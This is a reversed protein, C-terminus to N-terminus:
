LALDTFSACMAAGAGSQSGDGDGDDMAEYVSEDSDTELERASIFRRLEADDLFHADEESSSDSDTIAVSESGPPYNRDLWEIAHRLVAMTAAQDISIGIRVGSNLTRVYDPPGGDFMEESSRLVYESARKLKRAVAIRDRYYSGSVCDFNWQRVWDALEEHTPLEGLPVRGTELLPKVFQVCEARFEAEEDAADDDTDSGFINALPESRVMDREIKNRLTRMVNDYFARQAVRPYGLPLTPTHARLADLAATPSCDEGRCENLWWTIQDDTLLDDDQCERLWDAIQAPDLSSPQLQRGIDDLLEFNYDSDFRLTGPSPSRSSDDDSSELRRRGYRRDPYRLNHSPDDEAPDPEVEDTVDSENSSPASNDMAESAADDDADAGAVDSENSSPASDDMAESAADADADADSGVEDSLLEALLAGADMETESEAFELDRAPPAIPRTSVFLTVYLGEDDSSAYAYQLSASTDVIDNGVVRLYPWRQIYDTLEARRAETFQPICLEDRPADASQVPVWVGGSTINHEGLVADPTYTLNLDAFDSDSFPVMQDAMDAPKHLIGPRQSVGSGRAVVPDLLYDRYMRKFESVLTTAPLMAYRIGRYTIIHLMTDLFLQVNLMWGPDSICVSDYPVLQNLQQQAFHSLVEPTDFAVPTDINYPTEFFHSGSYDEAADVVLKIECHVPQDAFNPHTPPNTAPRNHSNSVITIDDAALPHGSTCWESIIVSIGGVGPVNDDEDSSSDSMDMAAAAM